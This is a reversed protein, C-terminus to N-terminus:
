SRYKSKETEKKKKKMYYGPDNGNVPHGSGCGHHHCLDYGSVNICIGYNKEGLDM